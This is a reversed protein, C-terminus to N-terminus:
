KSSLIHVFEFPLEGTELYNKYKKPTTLAKVYSDLSKQEQEYIYQKISKHDDNDIAKKILEYERIDQEDSEQTAPVVHHNTGWRKQNMEIRYKFLSERSKISQEYNGLSLNIMYVSGAFSPGPFRRNNRYEMYTTYDITSDFLPFLYEKTAKLAEPMYQIFNDTGYEYEWSDVEDFEECIRLGDMFISYEFGACLPFISFQVTFEAGDFEYYSLLQVIKRNVIRHFIKNKRLFGKHNMTPEFTDVFIKNIRNMIM